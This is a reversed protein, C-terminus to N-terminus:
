VLVTLYKFVTDYLLVFVCQGCRRCHYDRIQRVADRTAPVPFASSQFFVVGSQEESRGVFVIYNRRLVLLDSVSCGAGVSMSTIRSDGALGLGVVVSAAASVHRFRGKHSRRFSFTANLRGDDFPSSSPPGGLAELRGEFVGAAAATARGLEQPSWTPTCTSTRENSVGDILLSVALFSSFLTWRGVEMIADFSCRLM